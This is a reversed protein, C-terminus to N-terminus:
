ECQHALHGRQHRHYGHLHQNGRSGLHGPRRQDRWGLRQHRRLTHHYYRHRHRLHHQLCHHQWEPDCRQLSEVNYLSMANTITGSTNLRLTSTGDTQTITGTGAASANGLVLTGANLTTAGSYTNAGSLTLTGTGNKTIAAGTGSIAGSVDMTLGPNVTWTNTTNALGLDGTVSSNGTATLDLNGAGTGSLSFSSSIDLTGTLSASSTGRWDGSGANAGSVTLTGTGADATFSNFGYWDGSRGISVDLTIAGNTASTDLALTGGKSDSRGLDGTLTISDATITTDSVLEIGQEHLTGSTGSTLNVTGQTIDGNLQILQATGTLTGTGTTSSSLGYTDSAITTGYILNANNVVASSTSLSGAGSIQLTGGSVTTDGTYTNAGTLTQTGTGVKTLAHTGATNQIIGSFSATADGDGLTLTATGSVGDVTGSGSLGNITDSFGNLNLTGNNVVNGKGAGNAIQNSRGLELTGKTGAITTDGAYDNNEAANNLTVTISTGFTNDLTLGNTGTVQGTLTATGTGNTSFLADSHNATIDGSFTVNTTDVRIGPRDTGLATNFVIDNTLTNNGSTIYIGAKDTASEGITIAGSGMSAFSAASDLRMRTGSGTVRWGTHNWRHLHELHQDPEFTGNSNTVRLLLQIGPSSTPSPRRCAYGWTDLTKVGAVSNTITGAGSNTQTFAANYGNLDFTGGSVTLQGKDTFASDSGAKLTGSNVTTLGTYTNAGSLTLIGSNDKTLAGTGSMVGSLTQNASSNYRFIGANTIAGSYDGTNLMGSGSIELTGDNIIISNGTANSASTLGLTGAGNKTIGVGGNHSTSVLLDIDDTGEAVTYIVRNGSNNQGNFAAGSFTSQSGGTTIVGASRWILNSTLSISAGGNSDITINDGAGSMITQGGGTFALASGNNINITGADWHNSGSVNRIRLTGGNIVTNGAYSSNVEIRLLGDGEKTLGAGGGSNTVIASTVLLEDTNGVDVVFEGATVRRIDLQGSLTGTHGAGGSDLRITRTGAQNSIQVSNALTLGDAGFDLVKTGTEALNVLGTGLAASNQIEVTGGEIRTGGAYTNTGSLTLTSTNEKLLEGSGSIVGSLTQNASSNYNLIGNNVIAGAYSGSGLQGAGGIELTGASITTAGTYTNTGTLTLTGIGTKTIGGNTIVASITLDSAAAASDNIEFTRTGAGLDIYGANSGSGASTITAGTGTYGSAVSLKGELLMRGAATNDSNLTINPTGSGTFEFGIGGSQVHLTGGTTGGEVTNTGGSVDWHTDPLTAADNITNTGGSWTVTNGLVNLTGGIGTSFVGGSNSLGDISETKGNLSFEGSSISIDVDDALQNDADLRLTGGTVEVDATSIDGDGTIATASSNLVVLGSEITAKGTFSNAGTITLQGTGQKVLDGSGTIVGDLNQDASTNFCLIGDAGISLASAANISGSGAIELIGASVTTTGSYTNTGTLTQTGSGQKTFALAGTGDQLIGSFTADNEDGATM